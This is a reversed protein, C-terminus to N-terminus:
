SSKEQSQQAESLRSTVPNYVMEFIDNGYMEERSEIAVMTQYKVQARDIESM